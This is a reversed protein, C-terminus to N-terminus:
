GQEKQDPFPGFYKEYQSEKIERVEERYRTMEEDFSLNHRLRSEVCIACYRIRDVYRGRRIESYHYVEGSSISNGCDQCHWSKRARASKAPIGVRIPPECLIQISPLLEDDTANRYKSVTRWAVIAGGIILLLGFGQMQSYPKDSKVSGPPRRSYPAVTTGDRRTYGSVSVSAPTM